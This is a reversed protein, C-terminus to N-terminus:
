EKFPGHDVYEQKIIIWVDDSLREEFYRYPLFGFGDAGWEKGWSNRIIFNKTKDDYGCLVMAHGGLIDENESPFPIFGGNNAAEDISEFVTFGFISPYGNNLFQKILRMTNEATANPHDLRVYKMSQFNSAFAYTFAPPEDDFKTIDYQYFEEPPVGFLALSGMVSRMYAGTDGKLRMLNRTAKYTFLCSVPTYKHYINKEFYEVIGSMAFATCSGLSLQDRIPSMKPRLDVSVPLKEVAGGAKMKLLPKILNSVNPTNISYDKPSALGRLYGLGKVKGNVVTNNKQPKEVM